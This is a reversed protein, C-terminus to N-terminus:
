ADTSVVDTVARRGPGIPPQGGIPDGAGLKEIVSPVDELATSLVLPHGAATWPDRVAVAYLPALEAEVVRRVDRGVRPGHRLGLGFLIAAEENHGTAALVAAHGVAIWPYEARSGCREATALATDLNRRASELDGEVTDLRALGALTQPAGAGLERASWLAISRDFWMRARQRNGASLDLDETLEDLTRRQTDPLIRSIVGM